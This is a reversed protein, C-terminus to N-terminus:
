MAKYVEMDQLKDGVVNFRIEVPHCCVNCDEIYCQQVVSLDAISENKEWCYPCIYTYIKTALPM